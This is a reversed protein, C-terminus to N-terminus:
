WLSSRLYEPSFFQQYYKKTKLKNVENYALYIYLRRNVCNLKNETGWSLNSGEAFLIDQRNICVINVSFFIIWQQCYTCAISSAISTIFFFILLPRLQCREVTESVSTLIEDRASSLPRLEQSNHLHVSM